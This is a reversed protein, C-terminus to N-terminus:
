TTRATKVLILLTHQPATSMMMHLVASSYSNKLVPFVITPNMVICSCCLVSLVTWTQTPLMANATLYLHCCSIVITQMMSAFNILPLCYAVLHYVPVHQMLTKVTSVHITGTYRSAIKNFFSKVAFHFISQIQVSQNHFMVQTISLILVLWLLVRAPIVCILNTSVTARITYTIM